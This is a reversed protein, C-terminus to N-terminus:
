DGRTGRCVSGAADGSGGCGSGSKDSSVEEWGSIEEAILPDTEAYVVELDYEARNLDPASNISRLMPEGTAFVTPVTPRLVPTSLPRRQANCRRSDLESEFCELLRRLTLPSAAACVTSSSFTGSFVIVGARV